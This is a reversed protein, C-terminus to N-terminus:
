VPFHCFLCKLFTTMSSTISASCSLKVVQRRVPKGDSKCEPTPKDQRHYLPRPYRGGVISQLLRVRMRGSFLRTSGGDADSLIVGSYCFVPEGRHGFLSCCAPLTEREECSLAPESGWRCRRRPRLRFLRDPLSFCLLDGSLFGSKRRSIHFATLFHVLNLHSGIQPPPPLSHSPSPPDPSHSRPRNTARSAPPCTGENPGRAM